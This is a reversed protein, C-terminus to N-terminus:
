AKLWVSFMFVLWHSLTHLACFTWSKLDMCLGDYKHGTMFM